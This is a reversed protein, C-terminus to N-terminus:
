APEAHDHATVSTATDIAFLEGDKNAYCTVVDFSECYEGLAEAIADQITASLSGDCPIPYILSFSSTDFYSYGVPKRNLDSM